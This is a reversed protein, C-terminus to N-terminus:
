EVEGDAEEIEDLWAFIDKPTIPDPTPDFADDDDDQVAKGADMALVACREEVYLTMGAKYAITLPGDHFDFDDTFTILVKEM